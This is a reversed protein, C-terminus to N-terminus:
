PADVLEKERAGQEPGPAVVDLAFRLVKADSSTPTWRRGTGMARGVQVPLEALVFYGNLELYASALAVSADM